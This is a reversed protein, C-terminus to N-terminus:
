KGWWEKKSTSGVIVSEPIKGFSNELLLTGPSEKTAGAGHLVPQVIRWM